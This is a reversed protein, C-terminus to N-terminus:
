APILPLGRPSLHILDIYWYESIVNSYGCFFKTKAFISSHIFLVSFGMNWQFVPGLAFSISMFFFLLFTCPWGSFKANPVSYSYKPVIRSESIDRSGNYLFVMLITLVLINKNRLIYLDGYLM